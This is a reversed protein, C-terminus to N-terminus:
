GCKRKIQAECEGSPLKQFCRSEELFEKKCYDYKMAEAKEEVISGIVRAKTESGKPGFALYCFSIVVGVIVGILFKM